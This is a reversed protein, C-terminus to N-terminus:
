SAADAPYASNLLLTWRNEETKAALQAAQETDFFELAFDGSLADVVAWKQVPEVYLASYRM